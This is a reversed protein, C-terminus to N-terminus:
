AAQLMRTMPVARPVVHRGLEKMFKYRKDPSTDIDYTPDILRFDPDIEELRDMHMYVGKFHRKNAERFFAKGNEDDRRASDQRFPKEKLVIRGEAVANKRPEIQREWQVVARISKFLNKQVGVSELQYEMIDGDPMDPPLTLLHVWNEFVRPVLIKNVNMDRFSAAREPASPFGYWAGHWYLHHISLVKTPWRYDPHVTQKVTEILRRRDVLGYEDVPTQLKNQSLYPDFLWADKPPLWISEYPNFSFGGVRRDLAEFDPSAVDAFTGPPTLHEAM